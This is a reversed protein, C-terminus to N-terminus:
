KKEMAIAYWDSNKYLNWAIVLLTSMSYKSIDSVKKLEDYFPIRVANCKRKQKVAGVSEEKNAM